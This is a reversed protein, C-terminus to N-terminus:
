IPELVAAGRVSARRLGGYHVAVSVCYSRLICPTQYDGLGETSQMLQSSSLTSLLSAIANNLFHMLLRIVLALPVARLM